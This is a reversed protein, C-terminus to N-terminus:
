FNCVNRLFRSGRVTAQKQSTAVGVKLDHFHLYYTKGCRRRVGGPSCLTIDWVGTSVMAMEILVQFVPLHIPQFLEVHHHFYRLSINFNIIIVHMNNPFKLLIKQLYSIFTQLSPIDIFNNVKQANDM